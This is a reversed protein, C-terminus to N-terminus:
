GLAASLQQVLQNAADIKAQLEAEHATAADLKNQLDANAAQAASLQAQLDANESRAAALDTQAQALAANAVTLAANATALNVQLQSVQGQLDAVQAKLAAIEGPCDPYGVDPTCSDPPPGATTTPETTTTPATTTTAVSTTPPPPAGTETCTGTHGDAPWTMNEFSANVDTSGQYCDHRNAHSLLTGNIFHCDTCEGLSLGYAGAGQPDFTMNEFTINSPIQQNGSGTHVLVQSDNASTCAIRGGLFHVNEGGLVQIGDQHKGADHGECTLYVADVTLPSSAGGAFSGVHIPDGRQEDVTISGIHGSCGGALLVADSSPNTVTINGYDVATDCKWHDPVTLDGGAAAAHTAGALGAGALGLLFLAVTGLLLLGKRM